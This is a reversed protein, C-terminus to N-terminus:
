FFCKDRKSNFTEYKMVFKPIHGPYLILSSHQCAKLNNLEVSPLVCGGQKHHRTLLDNNKEQAIHTGVASIECRRIEFAGGGRRIYLSRILSWQAAAPRM